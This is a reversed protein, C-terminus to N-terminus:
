IPQSNLSNHLKTDTWRHNLVALLRVLLGEVDGLTLHLRRVGDSEAKGEVEGNEVVLYKGRRVPSAMESLLDFM